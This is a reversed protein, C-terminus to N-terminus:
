QCRYGGPPAPPLSRAWGAASAHRCGPPLRPPRVRGATRHHRTNSPPSARRTRHVSIRGVDGTRDPRCGSASREPKASTKPEDSAGACLASSPQNCGRWRVPLPASTIRPQDGASVSGASSREVSRRRLLAVFGKKARRITRWMLTGHRRWGPRAKTLEPGWARRRGLAGAREARCLPCQPESRPPWEALVGGQAQLPATPLVFPRRAAGRDQQLPLTGHDRLNEPSHQSPDFGARLWCPSARRRRAAAPRCPM